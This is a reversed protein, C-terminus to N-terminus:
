KLLILVLLVIIITTPAISISGLWMFLLVAVLIGFIVTSLGAIFKNLKYFWYSIASDTYIYGNRYEFGSINWADSGFDPLGKGNELKASVSAKWSDDIGTTLGLFLVPTLGGAVVWWLVDVSTEESLWIM